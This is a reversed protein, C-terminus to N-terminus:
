ITLMNYMTVSDHSHKQKNQYQTINQYVITKKKKKLDSVFYIKTLSVLM